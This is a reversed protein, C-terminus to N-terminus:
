FTAPVRTAHPADVAPAPRGNAIIHYAGPAGLADERTRHAVASIDIAFLNIGFWEVEGVVLGEVVRENAHTGRNVVHGFVCQACANPGWAALLVESTQRDVAVGRLWPDCESAVEAWFAGPLCGARDAREHLTEVDLARSPGDNADSSLLEVGIAINAASRGTWHVDLDLASVMRIGIGTQASWRRVLLDLRLYQGYTANGLVARGVLLVATAEDPLGAPRM